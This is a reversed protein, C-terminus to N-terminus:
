RRAIPLQLFRHLHDALFATADDDHDAVDAGVPQRALHLRAGAGTGGVHIQAVIPDARLDKDVKPDM